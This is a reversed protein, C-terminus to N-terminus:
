AKEGFRAEYPTLYGTGDDFSAMVTVPTVHTHTTTTGHGTGVETVEIKFTDGNTVDIGDAFMAENMFLTIDKGSVDGSAAYQDGTSRVDENSTGDDSPNDLFEFAFSTDVPVSMAMSSIANIGTSDKSVNQGSDRDLLPASFDTSGDAQMEFVLNNSPDVIYNEGADADFSADTFDLTLTSM